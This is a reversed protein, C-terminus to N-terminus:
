RVFPALPSVGFLTPHSLVLTAYLVAAAALRVSTDRWGKAHLGAIRRASDWQAWVTGMERKKRRDIMRQGLVAFAAFTSFLIAHALNGNPVAHSAAWIALAVLLPHRTLGVIGPCHPDFAKNRAGGFSFPNPKAVALCVLIGAAATGILPFLNQWPAWPWLEVYPARGAAVILWALVALSLASYALSFGARGLRKTLPGRAWPRLPLSHMVFFLALAAIYEGWSM